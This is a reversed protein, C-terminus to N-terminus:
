EVEREEARGRRAAEIQSGLSRGAGVGKSVIAVVMRVAALAYFGLLVSVVFLLLVADIAGGVIWPVERTVGLGNLALTTGGLLLPVVVGLVGVAALRAISGGVAIVTRLTGVTRVVARATGALSRPDRGPAVLAPVRAISRRALIGLGVLVASLTGVTSLALWPDDGYADPLVGLGTVAAVGLCYGTGLLAYRTRTASAVAHTVAAAIAGIGISLAPWTLPLLAVLTTVAVGVLTAVLWHGRQM